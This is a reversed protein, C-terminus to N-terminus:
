RGRRDRRRRCKGVPSTRRRNPQPHPTSRPRSPLHRMWASLQGRGVLRSLETALRATPTQVIAALGQEFGDASESPTLFDPSYGDPPALDLLRRDGAPLQRRVHRRWRGFLLQDDDSQLLHLSLLVEWLPDPEPAVITRALDDCTFHIRLSM